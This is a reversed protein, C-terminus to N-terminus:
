NLMDKRTFVTFAVLLAAGAWITLTWISFSLDMGDIPSPKGALYATLDSNVMFLYKASEWSSVMNALITGFITSALMIGMSFATSRVLTSILFSMTAITLSSFWALGYEMWLYYAYSVTHVNETSVNTGSLQFGTLVPLTWGSFGFVFGSILYALIGAALIVLSVLFILSVYKSLLIRWRMVPRALLLKITGLANESSVLDSAVIIVLLPLLLSSANEMFRRAFNVGTPADPDIDMDLHYQKVEIQVQVYKKYEEPMRSSSLRARADTIDSQVKVHWDSTGTQKVMNEAIRMQAYTAIPIIVALIIMIVLFSRKKLIKITENKILPYINTM